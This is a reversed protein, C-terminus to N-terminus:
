APAITAPPLPVASALISAKSPAPAVTLLDGASKPIKIFLAIWSFFKFLLYIPHRFQHSHPSHLSHPQDNAQRSISFVSILLIILYYKTVPNIKEIKKVKLSVREM